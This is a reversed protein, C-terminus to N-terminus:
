VADMGDAGSVALAARDGDESAILMRDADRECVPEHRALLHLLELGQAVLQVARPRVVFADHCLEHFVLVVHAAIRGHLDESIQV